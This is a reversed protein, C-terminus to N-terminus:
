TPGQTIKGEIEKAAIFMEESMKSQQAELRKINETKNSYQKQMNSMHMALMEDLAKQTKEFGSREEQKAACIIANIKEANAIMDQSIKDAKKREALLQRHNYYRCILIAIILGIPAILYAPFKYDLLSILLSIVSTIGTALYAKYKYAEEGM